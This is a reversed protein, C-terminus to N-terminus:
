ILAATVARLLDNARQKIVYGRAGTNLAERVVDPSSEQSVFLIKSQPLLRRLRRATEIGNISPLGLDLLILDPRLQQAQQIAQLGDASEGVVELETHKQLKSRVFRRWPEYDDVLLVRFKRLAGGAL